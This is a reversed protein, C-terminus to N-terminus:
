ELGKELFYKKLNNMMLVEQKISNMFTKNEEPLRMIRNGVQDGVAFEGDSIVAIMPKQDGLSVDLPRERPATPAMSDVPIPRGAFLSKFSGEALMAM